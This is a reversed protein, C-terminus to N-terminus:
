QAVERLPLAQVKWQAKRNWRWDGNRHAEQREVCGAASECRMGAFQSLCRRVAAGTM